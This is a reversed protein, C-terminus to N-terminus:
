IVCIKLNPGRSNQLGTATTSNWKAWLGCHWSPACLIGFLIQTIQTIQPYEGIGQREVVAKILMIQPLM